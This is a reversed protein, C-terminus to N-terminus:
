KVQIHQTVISKGLLKCCRSWPTLGEVFTTDIANNIKIKGKLNIERGLYQFLCLKCLLEIKNMTLVM